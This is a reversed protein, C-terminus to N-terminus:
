SFLQPIDEQDKTNTHSLNKAKKLEEKTANKEVYYYVHPNLHRIPFKTFTVIFRVVVSNPFKFCRIFTVFYLLFINDKLGLIFKSYQVSVIFLAYYM